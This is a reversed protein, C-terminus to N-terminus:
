DIKHTDKWMSLSHSDTFKHIPKFWWFATESKM